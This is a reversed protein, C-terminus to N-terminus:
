KNLTQSFGVLNGLSVNIVSAYAVIVNGKALGIFIANVIM